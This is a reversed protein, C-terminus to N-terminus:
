LGDRPPTYVGWRSKSSEVAQLAQQRRDLAADFWDQWEKPTLPALADRVPVEEDLEPLVMESMEGLAKEVLVVEQTQADVTLSTQSSGDDHPDPVERWGEDSELEWHIFADPRPMTSWCDTHDIIIAHEKGEAPRLVRGVLQRHLRLSQTPRLLQLCTAEPVDLGEDVIACACLVTIRGERFDRMVQDRRGGSTSGDLAEAAIGRDRFLQAVDYANEVSVGVSITRARTPNFRLWDDVIEGAIAVVRKALEGTKFDGAVLPVDTTDISNPSRFLKYRCLAGMKMLRSPSPAYVFEDFDERSLGKGNPRIPTATFGIVASPNIADRVGRWSESGMHHAEDALLVAGDFAELEKKRRQMTPVMGVIVKQQTPTVGGAVIIGPIVKIHSYISRCIQQLIETRHCMVVVRAGQELAWRVVEAIMVTKGSGTAAIVCPRKRDAVLMLAEYVCQRQYDRLQFVM